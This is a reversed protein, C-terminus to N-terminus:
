KLTNLITKTNSSIIGIYNDEFTNAEGIADSHLGGGIIVNYKKERCGEIVAQLPKDPISTELFIAKINNLIIFNILEIIDKIGFESVTSIGQLGKVKINYSKGFYSFADHATILVRQKKKIKLINKKISKNLLKLNKIYLNTNNQYFNSYVTIKKKLINNVYKITNIWLKVSFWIHPDISNSFNIDRILNKIDISNSIAYINKNNNLKKFIESMKGELNLGNYFIINSNNLQKLNLQTAKYLHPDVGAGMLSTAQVSKKTINKVADKIIGTTTIINFFFNKSCFTFSFFIFIILKIVNKKYFYQM